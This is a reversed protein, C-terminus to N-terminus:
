KLHGNSQESLVHSEASLPCLSARWIADFGARALAFFAPTSRRFLGMATLLSVVYLAIRKTETPRIM